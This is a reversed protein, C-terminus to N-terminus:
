TQMEQQPQHRRARALYDGCVRQALRISVALMQQRADRADARDAALRAADLAAMVARAQLPDDLAQQLDCPGLAALPSRPETAPRM